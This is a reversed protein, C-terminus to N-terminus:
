WIRHCPKADGASEHATAARAMLFGAPEDGDVALRTMVTAMQLVTGREETLAESRPRPVSGKLPPQFTWLCLPRSAVEQAVVSVFL